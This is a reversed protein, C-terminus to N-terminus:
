IYRRRCTADSLQQLIGDPVRRESHRLDSQARHIAAYGLASTAGRILLRDGAKLHLCEVLSGWATFYTEPIAALEEWTLDSEVAFVHHAPLLAYEAYSGNFSRGMGGMMAVVKQGVAFHSDSADVIEGVCEIGPIIPKRIYPQNIEELRLIQESHNLGFAKVRVLVRGPEVTPIPCESLAVDEAKTIKDIIVFDRYAEMQDLWLATLRDNFVNGVRSDPVRRCALQQAVVDILAPIEDVNRASVTTMIVSRLGARNIVSIKELTTDFSGAKRFFDHTDRLGDLSMQYKRCDLSKLQRCVEDVTSASWAHLDKLAM